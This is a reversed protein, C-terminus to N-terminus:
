EGIAIKLARKCSMVLAEASGNQHPASEESPSMGQIGTISVCSINTALNGRCRTFVSTWEDRGNLEQVKIGRSLDDAVNDESPIDRWQGPISNSQIEGIRSSVFPKYNRSQNQIWGLTIMSDTFFMVDNFQIRSEEEFQSQNFKEDKNEQRLYACAGLAEQLADEPFQEEEAIFKMFESEVKFSLTDSKRNWVFGLVKEEAENELM